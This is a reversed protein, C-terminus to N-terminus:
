WERPKIRREKGWVLIAFIGEEDKEGYLYNLVDVRIYAMHPGSHKEPKQCTAQDEWGHVCTSKCKESLNVM